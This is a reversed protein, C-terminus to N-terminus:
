ITPQVGQIYSVLAFFLALNPFTDRAQYGWEQNGAKQHIVLGVMNASRKVEVSGFEPWPLTKKGISLGSQSLQLNGFSLTDGAQFRAIAGPLRQQVLQEELLQRLHDVNAVHEDVKLKQGDQQELTVIYNLVGNIVVVSIFMNKITEYRVVQPTKQRQDVLGQEYVVIAPQTARLRRYSRQIFYVCFGLGILGVLFLSCILSPILLIIWLWLVAKARGKNWGFEGLLHGLSAQYDSNM